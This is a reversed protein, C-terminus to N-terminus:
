PERGQSVAIAQGDISSDTTALELDGAITALRGWSRFARRYVLRTRVRLPGDGAGFRYESVDSGGAPLRTDSALVAPRWFPAPYAQAFAHERGEAPYAAADALIKAFGRGPLGAYNGEAPAGEGAWRPLRPGARLPLPAGRGDTAEVLLVLNRLPSGTPFHHGAGVNRVSVRVRLESGERSVSAQLDIAARMLELDDTAALAHSSLTRADRLIGGAAATAFRRPPGATARMHCDQCQVGQRAYASAAWEQYESYASVNWFSGQHCPACFQSRRYIPQYADPRGVVDDLPGFLLDAGRGPRLVTMSLVGPKGGSADVGVAKVKHCFDCFVGGAAAGTAHRPNSAFPADAAMGPVHCAACSGDTQPFDHRYAPAGAAARDDGDYVALFLRSTAARAHASGSWEGAISPHCRACAEREPGDAATWSRAPTRARPLAPLVIRYPVQVHRLRVGANLYGEKAAALVAGAAGAPLHFRGREDTETATATGQLRVRATAIPAGREDVVAGEVAATARGAILAGALSLVLRTDM